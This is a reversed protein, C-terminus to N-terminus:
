PGQSSRGPSRPCAGCSWWGAVSRARQLRGPRHPEGHGDQRVILESRAKWPGQLANGNFTALTRAGYLEPGTGPADQEPGTRLCGRERAWRAVSGCEGSRATYANWAKRFQRKRHGADDPAQVPQGTTERRPFSGTRHRSGSSGGRSSLWRSPGRPRRPV